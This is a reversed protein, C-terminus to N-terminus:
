FWPWSGWLGWVIPLQQQIAILQDTEFSKQLARQYQASTGVYLCECLDPDAYIYYVRDDHTQPILTRRPTLTRLNALKEPTDALKMQFGVAALLQETTRTAWPDDMLGFSEVAVRYSPSAGPVQLDFSARSLAPVPDGMAKIVSGVTRGAADVESIRLRVNVADQRSDNYVYGIIRSETQGSDGATWEVRFLRDALRPGSEQNAPPPEGEAAVSRAPWATPLAAGLLVAVAFVPSRWRNM